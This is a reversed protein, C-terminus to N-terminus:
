VAGGGILGGGSLCCKFGGTPCGMWQGSCGIYWLLERPFCTDGCKDGGALLNKKTGTQSKKYFFYGAVGVAALGLLLKTQKNM